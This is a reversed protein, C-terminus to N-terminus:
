CEGGESVVFGHDAEVKGAPTAKPYRGGPESTLPNRRLPPHAAGGADRSACVSRNPGPDRQGVAYEQTKGGLSHRYDFGIRFGKGIGRVVFAAFERDPHGALVAEWESAVLPSSVVGVEDPVVSAKLPRCADLARLDEMYVYKGSENVTGDGAARFNCGATSTPGASEDGAKNVSLCARRYIILGVCFSFEM